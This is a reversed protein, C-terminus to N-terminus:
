EEEGHRYAGIYLQFQGAETIAFFVPYDKSEILKMASAVFQAYTDAMEGEQGFGSSDVFFSQLEHYGEAMRRDPIFPLARFDEPEVFEGMCHPHERGLEGELRDLIENELKEPLNHQFLSDLPDESDYDPDEPDIWVGPEGEKETWGAGYAVEMIVEYTLDADKDMYHRIVALNQVSRIMSAGMM